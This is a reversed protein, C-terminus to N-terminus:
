GCPSSASTRCLSPPTEASGDKHGCPLCSKKTNAAVICRHRSAARRQRSPRTKEARLLPHPLAHLLPQKTASGPDTFIVRHRLHEGSLLWATL